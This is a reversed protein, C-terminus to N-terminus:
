HPSSQVPRSETRCPASDGRIGLSGATGCTLLNGQNLHLVAYQSRLVGCSLLAESLLGGRLLGGRLLWCYM